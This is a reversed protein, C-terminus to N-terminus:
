TMITTVFVFRVPPCFIEPKAMGMAGWRSSNPSWICAASCFATLTSTLQYYKSPYKRRSCSRDVYRNKKGSTEPYFDICSLNISSSLRNWAGITGDLLLNFKEDTVTTQQKRNVRFCSSYGKTDLVFGEQSLSRAFDWLLGDRESIEKTRSGRALDSLSPSEYKGALEEISERWGTDEMIAFQELDAKTAGDYRKPKVVFADHTSQSATSGDDVPYFIRGGDETCYADARPLYPLRELFTSTRMGSVLVFKIGRRRIDQVMCLTKSSIIGRMGTSSPPLKLLQNAPQSKPIKSPYHLLTGDLDSFVISIDKIETGPVDDDVVMRPTFSESAIDTVIGDTTSGEISILVLLLCATIALLSCTAPSPLM